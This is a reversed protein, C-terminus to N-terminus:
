INPNLILAASPSPTMVKVAGPSAAYFACAELGHVELFAMNKWPKFFISLVPPLSVAVQALFPM